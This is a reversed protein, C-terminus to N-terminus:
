SAVEIWDWRRGCLSRARSAPVSVLRTQAPDTSSLSLPGLDGGQGASGPHLDPGAIRVEVEHVGPDLEAEGLRVYQGENNLEHRVEGAPQGDVFLQAGSRVSGGLWIEYTARRPVRVEAKIESPGADVPALPATRMVVPPNGAAAVLPGDTAWARVRACDPIGYPDDRGGLPLRRPLPAPAAPRQWAEYYTGRWVLRYPSPPRSQAPSRRVVLTRFYGLAGPDVRDTDTSGGKPVETGDRLPIEHRRLESIGEADAARLFHRAGYPEYETM